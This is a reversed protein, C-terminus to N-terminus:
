NEKDHDKQVELVIYGRSILDTTIEEDTKEFDISEILEQDETRLSQKILDLLTM